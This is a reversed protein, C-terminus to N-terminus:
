KDRPRANDGTHPSSKAGGDSLESADGQRLSTDKVAQGTQPDREVAAEPSVASSPPTAPAPGANKDDKM